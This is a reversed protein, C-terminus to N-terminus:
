PTFKDAKYSSGEQKVIRHLLTFEEPPAGINSTCILEMKDTTAGATVKYFTAYEARHNSQPFNEAAEQKLYDVLEVIGATQCYSTESLDVFTHVFKGNPKRRVTSVYNYETEITKTM